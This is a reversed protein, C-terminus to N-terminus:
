GGVSAVMCSYRSLRFHPPMGRESRERGKRECSLPLYRGAGKAKRFPRSHAYRYSRPICVSIVDNRRRGARSERAPPFGSPHHPAYDTAFSDDNLTLLRHSRVTGVPTTLLQSARKVMPALAIEIRADHQTYRGARRTLLYDIRMTPPYRRIMWIPM